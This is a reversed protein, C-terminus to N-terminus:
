KLKIEFLLCNQYNLNVFVVSKSSKNNKFSYDPIKHKSKWWFTMEIRVRTKFVYVLLNSTYKLVSNAHKLLKGAYKLM